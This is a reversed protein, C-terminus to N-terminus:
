SSPTPARRLSPWRSFLADLGFTLLLVLGAAGLIDLRIHTSLTELSQGIVGFTEQFVTSVSPMVVLTAGLGAIAVFLLVVDGWVISPAVGVGARDAVREAFDAPLNGEPEEQLASFVLQYAAADPDNETDPASGNGRFHRDFEDQLFQDRNNM